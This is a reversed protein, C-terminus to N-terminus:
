LGALAEKLLPRYLVSFKPSQHNVRQLYERARTADGAAKYIIGAHFLIGPDHSGTRLAADAATRAGEIDGAKYLVWGLVDAAAISPQVAYAARVRDTTAVVDRDHDANFLGIQLDLNVGNSTYLQEIAAVLDYEQQAKKMDGSAAYVDGLAIVYEPMPVRDIARKYYDSATSWDDNAAAVRGLGALAHVYGPFIKLSEEYQSGADDVRGMSFDLAALQAHAWAAHEPVGDGSARKIAAQWSSEAEAINGRVQFLLARRGFASLDPEIDIQKEYSFDAGEYDGLGFQADGLVGYGYALNKRQGIAELALDRARAFDHKTNSISALLAVADYNDTRRVGLSRQLLQEAVSLEAVDGTERVRQIHEQALRNLSFTDLPDNAARTELFRVNAEQQVRVATATAGSVAPTSVPSAMRESSGGGCATGILIAAGSLLIVARKIATM